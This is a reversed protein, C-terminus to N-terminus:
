FNLLATLELLSTGGVSGVLLLMSRVMPQQSFRAFAGNDLGEIQKALQEVHDAFPKGREGGLRYHSLSDRIVQLM